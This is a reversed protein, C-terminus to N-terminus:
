LGKGKGTGRAQGRPGGKGGFCRSFRSASPFQVKTRGTDVLLREVLSDLTEV